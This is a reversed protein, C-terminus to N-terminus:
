FKNKKQWLKEVPFSGAILMAQHEEHDNGGQQSYHTIISLSVGKNGGKSMVGIEFQKWFLIIM